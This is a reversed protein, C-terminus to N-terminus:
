MMDKVMDREMQRWWLTYCSLNYDCQQIAKKSKKISGTKGDKQGPIMVKKLKRGEQSTINVALPVIKENVVHEGALGKESNTAKM